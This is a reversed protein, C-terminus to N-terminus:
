LFHQRDWPRHHIYEVNNTAVVYTVSVQIRVDAKLDYLNYGIGHFAAPGGTGLNLNRSHSELVKFYKPGCSRFVSQDWTFHPTHHVYMHVRGLYGELAM